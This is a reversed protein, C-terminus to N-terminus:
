RGCRLLRTDCHSQTRHPETRCDSRPTPDDDQLFPHPDYNGVVHCDDPIDVGMLGEGRLKRIDPASVVLNKLDECLDDQHRCGGVGHSFNGAGLRPPNSLQGNVPPVERFQGFLM